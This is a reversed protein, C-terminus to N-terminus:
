ENLKCHIQSTLASLPNHQLLHNGPETKKKSETVTHINQTKHLFFFNLDTRSLFQTLIKSSLSFFDISDYVKLVFFFRFLDCAKFDFQISSYDTNGYSSM